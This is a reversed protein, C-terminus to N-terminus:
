AARKHIYIGSVKNQLVSLGHYNRAQVLYGDSLQNIDPPTIKLINRKIVALIAPVHCIMFNIATGTTTNSGSGFTAATNFRAAPVRIIYHGDITQIERNLVTSMETAVRIKFIDGSNKLTKYTTESMFIVRMEQPVEADNLLAIGTDIDNMVPPVSSTERFVSAM